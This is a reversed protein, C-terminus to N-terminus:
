HYHEHKVNFGVETIEQDQDVEEEQGKKAIGMFLHLLLGLIKINEM